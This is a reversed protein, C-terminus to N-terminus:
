TLQLLDSTSVVRLLQIHKSDDEAALAHKLVTTIGGVIAVAEKMLQLARVVRCSM